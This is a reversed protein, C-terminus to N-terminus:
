VAPSTLVVVSSMDQWIAPPETWGLDWRICVRHRRFDVATVTGTVSRTQDAVRDDQRPIICCRADQGGCKCGTTYPRTM